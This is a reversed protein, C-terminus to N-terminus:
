TRDPSILSWSPLVHTVRRGPSWKYTGSPPIWAKLLPSKAEINSAKAGPPGRSSYKSAIAAPPHRFVGVALLEHDPM